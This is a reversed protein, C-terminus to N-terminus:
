KFQEILDAIKITGKEAQTSKSDSKADYAFYFNFSNSIANGLVTVKGDEKTILDDDNESSILSVSESDAITSGQKQRM